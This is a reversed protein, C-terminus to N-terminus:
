FVDVLEWVVPIGNVCFNAKRMQYWEGKAVHFLYIDPQMLRPYNFFVDEVTEQYSFKGNELRHVTYM